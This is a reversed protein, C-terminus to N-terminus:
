SCKKDRGTGFNSRLTRPCNTISKLYIRYQVNYKMPNGGSTTGQAIPRYNQGPFQIKFDAERGDNPVEAEFFNVRGPSALYGIAEFFNHDNSFIIDEARNSLITM